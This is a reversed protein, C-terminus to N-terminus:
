LFEDDNIIINICLQKCTAAENMCICVNQIKAYNDIM